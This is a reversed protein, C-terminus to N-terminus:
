KLTGFAVHTNKLWKKGAFHHDTCFGVSHIIFRPGVSLLVQIYQGKKESKWNAKSRWMEWCGTLDQSYPRMQRWPISARQYLFLLLPWFSQSHYKKVHQITELSPSACIPLHQPFKFQLCRLFHWPM